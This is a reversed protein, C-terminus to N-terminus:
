EGQEMEALMLDVTEWLELISKPCKFALKNLFGRCIDVKTYHRTKSILKLFVKKEDKDLSKYTDDVCIYERM